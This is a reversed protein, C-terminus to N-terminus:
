SGRRRKHFRDAAQGTEPGRRPRRPLAPHRGLRPGGAVPRQRVAPQAPRGRGRVAQRRPVHLLPLDQRPQRGPAGHLGGRVDRVERPRAAPLPPGEEPQPLAQEGQGGGRGPGPAGRRGPDAPRAARHRRRQNQGQPRRLLRASPRHELRDHRVVARGWPAEQRERLAVGAHPRRPREPARGGRLPLLRGGRQRRDRARGGGRRAGGPPPRAPRDPLRIPGGRLAQRGQLRPPAGGADEGRHDRARVRRLLRADPLHSKRKERGERSGSQVFERLVDLARWARDGHRSGQILLDIREERPRDGFDPHYRRLVDEVLPMRAAAQMADTGADELVAPDAGVAREMAELDDAGAEKAEQMGVYLHAGQRYVSAADRLDNKTKPERRPGAPGPELAVLKALKALEAQELAEDRRAGGYYFQHTEPRLRFPIQRGDLLQLRITGGLDGQQPSM